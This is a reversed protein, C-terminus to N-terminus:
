GDYVVEQAGCKTCKASLEYRDTDILYFSTNGCKCAIDKQPSGDLMRAEIYRKVFKDSM